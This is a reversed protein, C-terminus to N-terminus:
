ERVMRRTINRRGDIIRVIRVTDEGSLHEYVVVYPLLVVIRIRSGLKPRPSGIEPFASLRQYISRLDSVYRSAVAHGALETLRNVITLFDADAEPSVTVQTM